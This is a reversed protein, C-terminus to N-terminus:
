WPESIIEGCARLAAICIAYPATTGPHNHAQGFFRVLWPYHDGQFITQLPKGLEGMRDVVEWAHAINTSPEFASWRDFEHPMHPRNRILCKGPFMSEAHGIACKYLMVKESVMRDLEPGPQITM